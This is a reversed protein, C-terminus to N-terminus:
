LKSAALTTKHVLDSLQICFAAYLRAAPDTTLEPHKLDDIQKLAALIKIKDPAQAAKVLRVREAEKKEAEERELKERAQREIAAKRNAEDIKRKSEAQQEKLKAAAAEGSKRNAEALAAMQENHLRQTEKQAEERAYAEDALRENELRLRRQEVQRLREAEAQAEQQKKAEAQAQAVKAKADGLVNQFVAENMEDLKYFAVDTGVLPELLAIRAAKLAERRSAEARIAFQEMEELRREAPEIQGKVWGALADIARGKRLFEEKYDKRSNETAVRLEKLKLRLTRAQKMETLQDAATVNVAAAEALIPALQSQAVALSQILPDTEALGNDRAIVALAPPINVTPTTM